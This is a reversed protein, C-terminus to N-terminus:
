VIGKSTLLLTAQKPLAGRSCAWWDQGHLGPDETYVSNAKHFKGEWCKGSNIILGKNIIQEMDGGERPLASWSSQPQKQIQENYFKRLYCLWQCRHARLFAQQTLPHIHSQADCLIHLHYMPIFFSSTTGPAGLCFPFMNKGPAKCFM